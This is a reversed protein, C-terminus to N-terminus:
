KIAMLKFKHGNEKWNKLVVYRTNKILGPRGLLRFIIEHFVITGLSIINSFYLDCNGHFM